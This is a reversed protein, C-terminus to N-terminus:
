TIEIEKLIMLGKGKKGWVRGYAREQEKEFEHSKKKIIAIVHM